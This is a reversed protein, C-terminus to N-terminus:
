LKDSVPATERLEKSLLDMAAQLLQEKAAKELLSLLEFAAGRPKEADQLWSCIQL